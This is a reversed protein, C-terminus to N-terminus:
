LAVRPAMAGEGARQALFQRLAADANVAHRRPRDPSRQDGGAEILFPHCVESFLLGEAAGLPRVLDGRAVQKEGALVRRVHRTLDEVRVAALEDAASLKACDQSPAAPGERQPFASAPVTM